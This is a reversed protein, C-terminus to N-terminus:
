DNTCIRIPLGLRGCQSLFSAPLSLDFQENALWGDVFVDAERGAARWADLGEASCRQLLAAAREFGARVRDGFSEGSAEDAAADFFVARAARFAEDSPVLALAADHPLELARFFAEGMAARESSFGRVSVNIAQLGIDKM